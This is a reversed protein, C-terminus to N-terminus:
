LDNSLGKNFFSMFEITQSCKVDVLQVFIIYYYLKKKLRLFFVRFCVIKKKSIYKKLFVPILGDLGYLTTNPRSQNQAVKLVMPELGMVFRDGLIGEVSYM